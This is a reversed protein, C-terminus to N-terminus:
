TLVANYSAAPADSIPILKARLRLENARTKGDATYNCRQFKQAFRIQDPFLRSQQAHGIHVCPFVSRSIKSRKLSAKSDFEADVGVWSYILVKVRKRTLTLRSSSLAKKLLNKQDGAFNERACRAFSRQCRIQRHKFTAVKDLNVCGLRMPVDQSDECSIQDIFFLPLRGNQVTIAAGLVIIYGTRPSRDRRRRQDTRISIRACRITPM